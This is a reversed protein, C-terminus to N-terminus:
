KAGKIAPWRALREARNFDAAIKEKAKRKIRKRVHAPLEMGAINALFVARPMPSWKNCSVRAM